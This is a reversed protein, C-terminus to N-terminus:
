SCALVGNLTVFVHCCIVTFSGIRADVWDLMRRSTYSSDVLPVRKMSLAVSCNPEAGVSCFLSVSGDNSPPRPGHPGPLPNTFRVTYLSAATAWEPLQYAAIFVSTAPLDRACCIASFGVAPSRYENEIQTRVSSGFGDRAKEPLSTSHPSPPEVGTCLPVFKVAFPVQCFTVTVVSMFMPPM